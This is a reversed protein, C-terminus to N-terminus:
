TGNVKITPREADSVRAVFSNEGRAWLDIIGPDKRIAAVTSILDVDDHQLGLDKLMGNVGGRVACGMIQPMGHSVPRVEGNGHVASDFAAKCNAADPAFYSRCALPRVEYISCSGTADLLPCPKGTKARALDDLNAMEEACQDLIDGQKNGSLGMEVAILIAEAISVEVNQHCCFSCGQRCAIQLSSAIDGNLSDAQGYARHKTLGLIANVKGDPDQAILRRAVEVLDMRVRGATILATRIVNQDGDLPFMAPVPVGIDQMLAAAAKDSKAAKRRKAEGM